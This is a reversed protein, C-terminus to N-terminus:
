WRIRRSLSTATASTSAAAHPRGTAVRGHTSEAGTSSRSSASRAPSPKTPLFVSSIMGPAPEHASSPSSRSSTSTVSSGSPPTACGIRLRHPVQRAQRSAQGVWAKTAGNASSARRQMECAVISVASAIGRASRGSIPAHTNPQSTQWSTQGYLATAGARSATSGASRARSSPWAAGASSASSAAGLLWSRRKTLRVASRRIVRAWSSRLTHTASPLTPSAAAIAGSAARRASTVGSTRPWAAHASPAIAVRTGALRASATAASVPASTM